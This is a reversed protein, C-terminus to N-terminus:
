GGAAGAAAKRRRAARRGRAGCSGTVRNEYVDHSCERRIEERFGNYVAAGIVGDTAEPTRWEQRAESSAQTQDCRTADRDLRSM